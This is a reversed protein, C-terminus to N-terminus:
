GNKRRRRGAARLSGTCGAGSGRRRARRAAASGRLQQGPAPAGLRRWAARGGAASITRRWPQKAKRVLPAATNQRRQRQARQEAAPSTAASSSSTSPSTRRACGSAHCPRWGSGSPAGEAREAGRARERGQPEARAVAAAGSLKLSSGAGHESSAHAGCLSLFAVVTPGSSSPKKRNTTTPEAKRWIMRLAEIPPAWPGGGCYVAATARRAEQTSGSPPAKHM